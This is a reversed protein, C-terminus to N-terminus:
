VSPVHNVWLLPINEYHNTFLYAVDAISLPM